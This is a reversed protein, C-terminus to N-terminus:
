HNDNKKNKLASATLLMGLLGMVAWIMQTKINSYFQSDGTKPIASLPIDETLIEDIEAEETPVPEEEFEDLIVPEEEFEDLIVPEEEPIQALPTNDEEIEVTKIPTPM